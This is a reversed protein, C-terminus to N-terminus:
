KGTIVLTNQRYSKGKSFIECKIELDLNSGDDNLREEFAKRENSGVPASFDIKLPTMSLHSVKGNIIYKINRYYFLISCEFKAPVLSVIQNKTVNIGYKRYVVSQFLSRHTETLMDCKAYFGEPRFVFLKKSATKNAKNLVLTPFGISLWNLQGFNNPDKKELILDNTSSKFAELSISGYDSEYDVTLDALDFVINNTHGNTSSLILILAITLAFKLFM